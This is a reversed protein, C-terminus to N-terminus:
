HFIMSVNGDQVIFTLQAEYHREEEESFSLKQNYTNHILRVAAISSSSCGVTLSSNREFEM